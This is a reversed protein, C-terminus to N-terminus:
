FCSKFVFQVMGMKFYAFLGETSKFPQDSSEEQAKLVQIMVKELIRVKKRENTSWLENLARGMKGETKLKQVGSKVVQTRM